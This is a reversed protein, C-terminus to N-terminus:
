QAFDIQVFVYVKRAASVADGAVTTKQTEQFPKNSKAKFPDLTIRGLGKSDADELLLVTTLTAMKETTNSGTVVVDCRAKEGPRAEALVTLKVEDLRVGEVVVHLAIPKGPEFAYEGQFPNEGPAYSPGEQACAFGAVLAVLLAFILRRM